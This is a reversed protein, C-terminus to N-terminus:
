LDGRNFPINKAVMEAEYETIRRVQRLYVQCREKLRSEVYKLYSSRETALAITRRHQRILRINEAIGSLNYRWADILVHDTM